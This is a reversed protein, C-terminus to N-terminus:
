SAIKRVRTICRRTKLAMQLPCHAFSFNCRILRNVIGKVCIILHVFVIFACRLCHFVFRM